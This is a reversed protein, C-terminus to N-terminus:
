EGGLSQDLGRPQGNGPDFGHLSVAAGAGGPPLARLLGQILNKVADDGAPVDDPKLAQLLRGDLVTGAFGPEPTLAALAAAAQTRYRELVSWLGSTIDDFLQQGVTGM